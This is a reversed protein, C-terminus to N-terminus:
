NIDTKFKEVLREDEAIVDKHRLMVKWVNTRNDWSYWHGNECIGKEVKQFYVGSLRSNRVSNGNETEELVYSTSNIATCKYPDVVMVVHGKFALIDGAQPTFRRAGNPLTIPKISNFNELVVPEKNVMMRSSAHTINLKSKEYIATVLGSCDIQGPVDENDPINSAAYKYRIPVPRAALEFAARLLNVVLPNKQEAILAEFAPTMEKNPGIYLNSNVERISEWKKTSLENSYTKNFGLTTLNSLFLLFTLKKINM